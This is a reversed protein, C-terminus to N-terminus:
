SARFARSLPDEAISAAILLRIWIAEACGDAAITGFPCTASSIQVLPQSM